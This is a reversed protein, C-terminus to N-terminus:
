KIGLGDLVSKAGTRQIGHNRLTRASDSVASSPVLSSRDRALAANEVNNLMAEFDKIRQIGTKLDDNLQPIDNDTSMQILDKSYRMGKGPSVAAMLDLAANRLTGFDAREASTQFIQSFRRQPFGTVRGAADKALLPLVRNKIFELHLRATDVKKSIDDGSQNTLVYGNAKAWTEAAAKKAKDGKLAPDDLNLYKTGHVTVNGVDSFDNPQDPVANPESPIREGSARLGQNRAAMTAAENKGIQEPTLPAPPNELRALRRDAIKLGENQYRATRNDQTLALDEKRAATQALLNKMNLRALALKNGPNGTSDAYQNLVRRSGVDGGRNALGLTFAQLANNAHMGEGLPHAQVSQAMALLWPPIEGQGPPHPAFALDPQPVFSRDGGFGDPIPQQYSRPDGFRPDPPPPQWGQWDEPAPPFFAM